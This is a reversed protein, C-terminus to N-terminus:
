EIRYVRSQECCDRAKDEVWKVRGRVCTLTLNPLVRVTVHHLCTHVYIYYLYVPANLCSCVKAGLPSIRVRVRVRFVPKGGMISM